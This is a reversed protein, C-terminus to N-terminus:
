RRDETTGPVSGVTAPRHRFSMSGSPAADSFRVRNRVQPMLLGAAIVGAAALYGGILAGVDTVFPPLAMAIAASGIILVRRTREDTATAALPLIAWLLYWPQVVPSCAVVAALVLGLGQIEGMQRRYIRVSLHVLAPLCLLMGATNALAVATQSHNPDVVLGTGVGLMTSPSMWSYVSTTTTFFTTIWESGVLVSLAGTVAAFIAGVFVAILVPHAFRRFMAVCVCYLAAAAVFKINAALSVLVVGTALRFWAAMPLPRARHGLVQQEEINQAADLAELVLRLGSLMLGVMLADNHAGAILHWLVLPNLLGLWVAFGPAVGSRRALAPLAWGALLVGILALLRYLAIAGVLHDGGILAAGRSLALWAPGYPAPTNLWYHDVHLVVASGPDLAQAPGFRYPDLGRAATVGQALYSWVDNSFLPRGLMLPLSWAATIGYLQALTMIKLDRRLGLWVLVLVGMSVIGAAVMVAPPRVLGSTATALVSTAAFGAAAKPM